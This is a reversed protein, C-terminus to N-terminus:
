GGRSLAFRMLGERKQKLYDAFTPDDYPPRDAPREPPLMWHTIRELPKYGEEGLEDTYQGDWYMGPRHSSVQGKIWGEAYKNGDVPIWWLLLWEDKPATEIPQWDM